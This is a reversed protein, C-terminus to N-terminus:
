GSRLFRLRSGALYDREIEFAIWRRKLREAVAGTTNSGAFPDLVVDDSETLLKIFFEPLQHPFRAPHPKLKLKRCGRLYADMSDTNAFLLFNPPISGCNDREFNTTIDHGSPRRAPTVGKSLLLRMSESYPRLVARNDAKPFPTKSLWWICDVADKVRIRRVNVWEAPSPLRAPNCWYFDQALCLSKTLALLLEFQYTSKVPFGETWTGGIDLVLSGDPALIREFERAFPMFWRVYNEANENGYPKKRVLAFPPSTLVLNVSEDPIKPLLELGDGLFAAGYRTSYLPRAARVLKSASNSDSTPLGFAELSPPVTALDASDADM